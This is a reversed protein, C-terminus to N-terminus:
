ADCFAPQHAGKLRSDFPRLGPTNTDPKAAIGRLVLRLAHGCAREPRTTDMDFKAIMRERAAADPTL